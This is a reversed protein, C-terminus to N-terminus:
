PRCWLARALDILSRDPTGKISLRMRSRDPHELEIVCESLASPTSLNLEVFAETREAPREVVAANGPIRRKLGNYDLRLAQCIETLPHSAALEAAERWLKEPIPSSSHEKTSRWAEFHRRAKELNTGALTNKRIGM